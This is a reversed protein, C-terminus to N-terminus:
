INGSGCSKFCDFTLKNMINLMKKDDVANIDKM